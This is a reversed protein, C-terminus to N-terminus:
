ENNNDDEEINELNDLYEKLSQLSKWDDKFEPEYSKIQQILDERYGKDYTYNEIADALENLYAPGTLSIRLDYWYWKTKYDWLFIGKTINRHLDHLFRNRVRVLSNDNGFLHLFRLFWKPCWAPRAAADMAEVLAHLMSKEDSYPVAGLYKYKEHFDKPFFIARIHDFTINQTHVIGKRRGKWFLFCYKFNTLREKMTPPTYFKSKKNIKM